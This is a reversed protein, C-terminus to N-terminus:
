GLIGKKEGDQMASGLDVTSIQNGNAAAAVVGGCGPQCVVTDEVAVGLRGDRSALGEGDCRV